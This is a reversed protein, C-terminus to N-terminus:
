VASPGGGRAGRVVSHQLGLADIPLRASPGPSVPFPASVNVFFPVILMVIALKLDPNEIPNLLAVQSSVCVHPLTPTCVTPTRWAAEVLLRAPHGVGLGQTPGGCSGPATLAQM